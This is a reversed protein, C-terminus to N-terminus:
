SEAPSVRVPMWDFSSRWAAPWSSTTRAPHGSSCTGGNKTAAWIGLVDRAALVLLQEGEGLLVREALQSAVEESRPLFFVSAYTAAVRFELHQESHLVRRVYAEVVVDDPFLGACVVLM